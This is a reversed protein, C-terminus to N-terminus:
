KLVSGIWASLGGFGCASRALHHRLAGGLAPCCMCSGIALLLHAVGVAAYGSASRLTQLGSLRPKMAVLAQGQRYGMRWFSLPVLREPKVWHEISAEPCYSMRLGAAHARQLYETDEGCLLQTGARGLGPAFDGLRALAARTFAFHAGIGDPTKLGFADEGRDFEALAWAHRADYWVPRPVAEWWLLVRGVVVDSQWRTFHGALTDIWHPAMRVDDDLFAIIDGQAERIGRNRASVLGLTTESVLRVWPYRTVVAETGDGCVNAIVLVEHKEKTVSHVQALAALTRALFLRRNHTCIVISIM